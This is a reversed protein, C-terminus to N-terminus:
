FQILFHTHHLLPHLVREEGLVEEGGLLVTLSRDDQM